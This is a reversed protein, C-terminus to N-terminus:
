ATRAVHKRRCSRVRHAHLELCRRTRHRGRVTLEPHHCERERLRRYRRDALPKTPTTTATPLPIVAPPTAQPAPPGTLLCGTGTWIASMQFTMDIPTSSYGACPDVIESGTSWDAWGMDPVPDTAAEAFEHSIAVTTAALISPPLTSENTSLYQVCEPLGAMAPIELVPYVDSQIVPETATTVYLDTHEGCSTRGGFMFASYDVSSDPLVVIQVDRQGTIGFYAVARAAEATWDQDQIPGAPLPANDFYTGGLTVGTPGYPALANLWSSGPLEAFLQQVTQVVPDSPQWNGWFDLYVVPSAQVPGGHNIITPAASLPPLTVDALSSATAVLSGFGVALAVVTIRLQSGLSKATTQQVPVWGARRYQDLVTETHSAKMSEIRTSGAPASRLARDKVKRAIWALLGIGILVVAVDLGFM